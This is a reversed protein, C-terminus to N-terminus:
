IIPTPLNFTGAPLFPKDPQLYTWPHSFLNILPKLDLSSAQYFFPSQRLSSEWSLTLPKSVIRSCCCIATLGPAPQSPPLEPLVHLREDKGDGWVGQPLIEQETSLLVLYLSLCCTKQIWYISHRGGDTLGLIFVGQVLSAQNLPLMEETLGMNRPHNMIVTSVLFLFGTTARCLTGM